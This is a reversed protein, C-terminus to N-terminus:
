TEIDESGLRKKVLIYADKYVCVQYPHEMMLMAGTDVYLINNWKAPLPNEAKLHYTVYENGQYCKVVHRCDELSLEKVAQKVNYKRIIFWKFIEIVFLALSIIGFIFFRLRWDQHQNIFYDVGCTLTISIFLIIWSGSTLEFETKKKAKTMIAALITVGIGSFLWEKNEIMWNIM